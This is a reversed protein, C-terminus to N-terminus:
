EGYYMEVKRIVEECSLGREETPRDIVIIRYGEEACSVKDDFGGPRGTNKTVLWRCGYQRMTALNMERTFPGQMCIINRAAIGAEQCARISDTSPLVRAAVRNEMDRIGSYRSLEKAGTTLLVKEETENLLAVAEEISSVRSVGPCSYFSEERLLRVYEIGAASCAARINATAEAAYPHTADIVMAFDREKIFREMAIRDMRGEIVSIDKVDSITEAGYETAVCFVANRSWGRRCFEEALAHGEFTGAFILIKESM